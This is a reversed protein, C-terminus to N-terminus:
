NRAMDAWTKKRQHKLKAAPAKVSLGQSYESQKPLLVETTIDRDNIDPTEQMYSFQMWISM